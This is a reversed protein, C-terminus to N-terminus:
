EDAVLTTKVILSRDVAPNGEEWYLHLFVPDDASPPLGEDDQLTVSEPLVFIGSGNTTGNTGVGLVTGGLDAQGATVKFFLNTKNSLLNGLYYLPETSVTVPTSESFPAVDPHAADATVGGTISWNAAGIKDNIGDSTTDVLSWYHLLKGTWPEGADANITRPDVVQGGVLTACRSALSDVEAESMASVDWVALEAYSHATGYNVASGPVHGIVSETLGSVARTVTNKEKNAGNLYIIRSSDSIFAASINFWANDVNTASSIAQSITGDYARAVPSNATALKVSLTNYNTGADVGDGTALITGITNSLVTYVWGSAFRGNTLLANSQTLRNTARWSFGGLSM